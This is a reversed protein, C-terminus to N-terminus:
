LALAELAFLKFTRDYSATAIFNGDNSCDSSMVKGELGSLAKIPKWDGETFIKCTGDYSSTVIHGGTLLHRRLSPAEKEFGERDKVVAPDYEIDDDDSELHHRSGGENDEDSNDEDMRDWNSTRKRSIGDVQDLEMSQTKPRERDEDMDRSQGNTRHRMARGVGEPPETTFTWEKDRASYDAEFGDNATWFRVNSVVSNHAPIIYSCKAQRVDWIRVQNDGSGTAIVHGNPSWDLCHIPGVHGQMVMISRGSRLDWVRGIQDLGATAVLAGDGQFGIAFVERAHGEQLLIEQQTELDWLRWTHDY